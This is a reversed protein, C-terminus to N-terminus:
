IRCHTPREIRLQDAQPLGNLSSCDLTDNGRLDLFVLNPLAQLTSADRLHNGDLHLEALAAYRELGALTNIGAQPCDLRILGGLSHVRDQRVQDRLCRTLAADDLAPVALLPEPTHVPYDNVAFEYGCASLLLGTMAAAWHRLRRHGTSCESGDSLTTHVLRKM